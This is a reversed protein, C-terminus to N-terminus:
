LCGLMALTPVLVLLVQLINFSLEFVQLEFVWVPFRLDAWGGLFCFDAERGSTCYLCWEWVANSSMLLGWVFPSCAKCEM